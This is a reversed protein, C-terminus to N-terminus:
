AKVKASQSNGLIALLIGPIIIASGILAPAQPVEGFVFFAAVAATLTLSQGAITTLTVTFHGVVYNFGGHGILQPILTLMVLWIYGTSPHGTVPTGSVILYALGLIGGIGFVIWIYPILSVKKRISRGITLYISGAISAGLTMLLASLTLTATDSDATNSLVAITTTGIMTIFLGIWVLKSLRARLFFRELLATWLPGMNIIVMFLMVPTQELAFVILMFHIVIWVGAISAFLWDRRTLQLLETRYRTLTLPTLILAALGLRGAAIVPSPLGAEQSLKM